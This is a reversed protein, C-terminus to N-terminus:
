ESDGGEDATTTEAVATDADATFAQIQGSRFAKDFVLSVDSDGNKLVVGVDTISVQWIIGSITVQGGHRAVVGGGPGLFIAM